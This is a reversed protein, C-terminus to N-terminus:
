RSRVNVPALFRFGPRLQVARDENITPHRLFDEPVVHLRQQINLNTAAAGQQLAMLTLWASPAVPGNKIYPQLRLAAVLAGGLTLTSHMWHYNQQKGLAIWKDRFTTLEKELYERTRAASQAQASLSSSSSQSSEQDNTYDQGIRDRREGPVQLPVLVISRAQSRELREKLPRAVIGSGSTTELLLLNSPDKWQDAKKQDYGPVVIGMHDFKGQDITRIMSEDCHVAKSVFCALAAWPSTACSECRRDFLVVDGAQCRESIIQDLVDSSGPIRIKTRVEEEVKNRQRYTTYWWAAIPVSIVTVGGIMRGIVVRRRQTAAHVKSSSSFFVKRFM